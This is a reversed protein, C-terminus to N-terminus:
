LGAPRQSEGKSTVPLNKAPLTTLHQCLQGSLSHIGWGQLHELGPQILGRAAEDPASQTTPLGAWPRLVPVKLDKLNRGVWAM